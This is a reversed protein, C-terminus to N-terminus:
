RQAPIAATVHSPDAALPMRFTFTTLGDSTVDITGGHAKAIQSVIYLGLGLGKHDSRGVGRAYPAFLRERAEPPIAPGENTVSLAFADDTSARVKVPTGPVGHVLANALLNSLLRAIRERDVPADTKIDFEAEIAREPHSTRIEDVVHRLMPEIPETSLALQIGGGLRSRALDLVDEVLSSIRGTSKEIMGVILQTKDDLAKKKLLRIGGVIAALPNRLDHGLVAVFQERLDAAERADLLSSEARVLRSTADLHQGILDAFMRFMGLVTPDKVKAPKPDLACITGYFSGDARFIPMSIYSQFGYMAPTHHEAYRADEAVHDIAVVERTQRIENCITTEIRLEGGPTLGLGM